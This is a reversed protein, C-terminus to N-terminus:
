RFLNFQFLISQTLEFHEFRLINSESLCCHSCSCRFNIVFLLFYNNILLKFLTQTNFIDSQIKCIAGVIHRFKPLLAWHWSSLIHHIIEKNLLILTWSIQPRCYPRKIGSMNSISVNLLSVMQLLWIKEIIINIKIHTWFRHPGVAGHFIYIWFASKYFLPFQGHTWLFTFQALFLWTLIGHFILKHNRGAFIQQWSCLRLWSSTIESPFSWWLYTWILFSLFLESSRINNM